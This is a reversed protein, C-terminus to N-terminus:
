FLWVWTRKYCLGRQSSALNESHVHHVGPPNEWLCCAPPGHLRLTALWVLGSPPTWSWVATPSPQQKLRCPPTAARQKGVGPYKSPNSPDSCHLLGAQSQVTTHTSIVSLSTGAAKVWGARWGAGGGRSKLISLLGLARHMM